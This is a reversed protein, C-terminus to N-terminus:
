TQLLSWHQGRNAPMCADGYVRKLQMNLGKLPKAEDVVEKGVDAKMDASNVITTMSQGVKEVMYNAPVFAAACSAEIRGL